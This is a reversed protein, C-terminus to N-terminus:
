RISWKDGDTVVEIEGENYTGLIKVGQDNLLNVIEGHPHGFKNKRGASIVAIQPKSNQLMKETLGNKSGHHPVKLLEVHRTIANAATDTAPPEIDGTLLAQFDGFVFEAVISFENPSHETINEGLVKKNSTDEDPLVEVIEKLPWLINLEMEGLKLKNGRSVEIVEIKRKEVEGELTEFGSDHKGVDSIAFQGVEYTRVIDVFGGYHDLDPNTIIALEIKRDWFPMHRGLCSLIKKDSGADIVIQTQKQYILIGDGQGVDCFVLHVRNDLSPVIFLATLVALLILCTFILKWVKNM